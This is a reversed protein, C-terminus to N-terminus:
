LVGQLRILFMSLGVYLTHERCCYKQTKSFFLCNCLERTKLAHENEVANILCKKAISNM